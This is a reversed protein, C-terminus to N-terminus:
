WVTTCRRASAFLLERSIEPAVSEFPLENLAARVDTLKLIHYGFESEVVDSVEGVRMQFVIEEFEPLMNGKSLYGLDGGAGTHKDM